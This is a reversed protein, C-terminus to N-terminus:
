NEHILMPVRGGVPSYLDHHCLFVSGESGKGVLVLSLLAVTEQYVLLGYESQKNVNDKQGFDKHIAGCNEEPRFQFGTVSSNKLYLWVDRVETLSEEAM